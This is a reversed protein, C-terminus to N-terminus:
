LWCVTSPYNTLQCFRQAFYIRELLVIFLHISAYIFHTQSAICNTFFHHNIIDISFLNDQNLTVATSLTSENGLTQACVEKGTLLM